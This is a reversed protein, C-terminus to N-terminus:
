RGGSRWARRSFLMALPIIELRGALMGLIYTLKIMPHLAPMEAVPIYCPGINNLASFMGSLSAWPGHDSLAATIAGGGVLLVLWAFLLGAIQEIEGVEVVKGAYVVRAM